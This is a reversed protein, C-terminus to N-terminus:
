AMLLLIAIADDDEAQQRAIQEIEALLGKLNGVLASLVRTQEIVHQSVDDEVALRLARIAEGAEARDENPLEKAAKKAAQVVQNAKAKYAKLDVKKGHKDLYVTPLWGGHPFDEAPAPPASGSGWSVGWSVGWSGGWADAM